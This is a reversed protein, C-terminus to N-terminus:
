RRDDSPLRRDQPASGPPPQFQRPMLSGYVPRTPSGAIELVLKRKLGDVFADSSEIAMAFAGFGGIVDNRFHQILPEGFPGSLGGGRFNLALANITIGGALAAARNSALPRGGNNGADGSVDIVLRSAKFDNGAMWAQCFAIAESISNWGSAKRPAAVLKAAFTRASAADEIAQWEVIPHMSGAGGWEMYGVAIRKRYGSEIAGLVEASTIAAAFGQRQFAFEEPSISGSGDSALCLELDVETEASAAVPVGALAVAIGFLLWRM